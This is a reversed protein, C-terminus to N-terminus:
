VPDDPSFGKPEPFPSFVSLGLKLLLPDPRNTRREKFRRNHQWPLIPADFLRPRGQLSRNVRPRAKARQWFAARYLDFM